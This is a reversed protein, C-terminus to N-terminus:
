RSAVLSTETQLCRPPAIIEIELILPYQQVVTPGTVSIISSDQCRPEETYTPLHFIRLWVRDFANGKPVRVKVPQLDVFKFIYNVTLPQTTRWKTLNNRAQAVLMPPGSVLSVEQGTEKPILELMVVGQVRAFQGVRPYTLDTLDYKVGAPIDQATAKLALVGLCPVKALIVRTIM